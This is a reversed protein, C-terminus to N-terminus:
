SQGLYADLEVRSILVRAGDKRRSLRQSSLLDYVRQRSARLYAAAEAVTLYPSPDPPSPMPLRGALVAAVADITEAPLTVRVDTLHLTLSGGRRQTHSAGPDPRHARRQM